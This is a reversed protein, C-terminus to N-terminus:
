LVYQGEDTSRNLEAQRGTQLLGDKDCHEVQQWKQTHAHGGRLGDRVALTEEGDSDVSSLVEVPQGLIEERVKHADAWQHLKSPASDTETGAKTSITISTAPGTTASTM